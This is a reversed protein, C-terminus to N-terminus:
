NRIFTVLGLQLSNTHEDAEYLFYTVALSIVSFSAFGAHTSNSVLNACPLFFLSGWLSWHVMLGIDPESVDHQCVLAHRCSVQVFFMYPICRHWHTRPRQVHAASPKSTVVLQHSRAKVAAKVGINRLTWVNFCNLCLVLWSCFLFTLLLWLRQQM